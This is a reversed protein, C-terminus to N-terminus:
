ILFVTLLIHRAVAFSATPPDGFSAPHFQEIRTLAPVVVADGLVAVTIASAAPTASPTSGDPESSACCADAQAQTLATTTGDADAHAMPCSEGSECCAMRAEPTTAWGTCLGVNGACIALTLLAASCRRAFIVDTPHAVVAIIDVAVAAFSRQRPCAGAAGTITKSREPRIAAAVAATLGQEHLAAV